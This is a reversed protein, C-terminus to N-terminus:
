FDNFRKIDIETNLAKKNEIFHYLEKAVYPGIMVGRTGLGNLIYLVKHDKHQGVLPRRDKVTPRIGAVQDVVTFDCNIITKLKNLLEEKAKLTITNTKDKWDYTAGIKYLDDAIPIIFVNSKLVFDINLDPAYITILEGKVEKLPLTKFFPNHRMGFGEAFVIHKASIGKYNVAEEEINLEDYLFAEEKLQENNNLYVKYKEVLLKTDVRGTDLVEGFGFEANISKNTNNQIVSSLYPSLNPKDSAAFWDNQEEISAFRRFVSTKYDLKIDLRKELTTLIPLALELQEKSKWVSSFRKLIVPNYLGGAVISAQESSNDFVIFSKNNKILQECFFIGALGSGVIIYDLKM